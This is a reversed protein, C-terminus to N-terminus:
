RGPSGPTALQSIRLDVTSGSNGTKRVEQFTDTGFNMLIGFGGSGGWGGQAGLGRRRRGYGHVPSGDGLGSGLLLRQHQDIEQTGGTPSFDITASVM